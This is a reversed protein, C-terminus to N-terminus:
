RPHEQQYAILATKWEATLINMIGSWANYNLLSNDNPLSDVQFGFYAPATAGNREILWDRGGGYDGHLQGLVCDHGSEMNLKEIDIAWLQDHSLISMGRAIEDKFM